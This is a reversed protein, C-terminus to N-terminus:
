NVTLYAQFPCTLQFYTAVTELRLRPHDEFLLSPFVEWHASNEAACRTTWKPHFSFYALIPIYMSGRAIVLPKDPKLVRSPAHSSSSRCPRSSAHPHAYPSPLCLTLLSTDGTPTLQLANVGPSASLKWPSLPRLWARVSLRGTSVGRHWPHPQSCGLLTPKWKGFSLDSSSGGFTGDALLLSVLRTESLSERLSVHDLVSWMPGEKDQFPGYHM